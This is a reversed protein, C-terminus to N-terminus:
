YIGKGSYIQWKDNGYNIEGKRGDNYARPTVYKTMWLFEDRYIKTLLFLTSVIKM